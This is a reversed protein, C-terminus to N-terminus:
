RNFIAFCFINQKAIKLQYYNINTNLKFKQVNIHNVQNMLPVERSFQGESLNGLVNFVPFAHCLVSRM